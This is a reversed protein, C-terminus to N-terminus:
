TQLSRSRSSPPRPSSMPQSPKKQGGMSAQQFWACLQRTWTGHSNRRSESAIACTSSACSCSNANEPSTLRHSTHTAALKWPLQLGRLFKRLMRRYVHQWTHVSLSLRAAVAHTLKALRSLGFHHCSWPHDAASTM